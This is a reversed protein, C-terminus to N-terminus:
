DTSRQLTEIAGRRADRDRLFAPWLQTEDFTLAEVRLTGDDDLECGNQPPVSARRRAVEGLDAPDREVRDLPHRDASPDGEIVVAEVLVVPARDFPQLRRPTPQPVRPEDIALPM